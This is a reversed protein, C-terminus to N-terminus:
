HTVAAVNGGGGIADVVARALAVYNKSM